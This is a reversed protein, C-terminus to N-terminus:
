SSSVVLLLSFFLIIIEGRKRKHKGPGQKSVQGGEVSSGWITNHQGGGRHKGKEEPRHRPKKRQYGGRNTWELDIFVFTGRTGPFGM